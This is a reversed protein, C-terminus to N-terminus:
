ISNIVGILSKSLTKDLYMLSVEIMIVGDKFTLKLILGFWILYFDKTQFMWRDKFNILSKSIMWTQLYVEMCAYYEIMLLLQLLFSTSHLASNKGFRWMIDENLKMTSATCGISKNARTIVELCSSIRQSNLKIACWLAYQKLVRNEEILMTELLCSNKILVQGDLSKLYDSYTLTNVM